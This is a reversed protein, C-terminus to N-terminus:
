WRAIGIRRAFTRRRCGVAVAVGGVAAVAFRRRRSWSTDFFKRIQDTKIEGGREQEKERKGM